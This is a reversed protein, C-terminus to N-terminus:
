DADHDMGAAERNARAEDLAAKFYDWTKISHPDKGDVLARSLVHRIEDVAVDPGYEKLLQKFRRPQSLLDPHLVHGRDAERVESLMAQWYAYLGDEGAAVSGAARLAVLKLSNLWGGRGRIREQIYRFIENVAHEPLYGQDEVLVAALLRVAQAGAPSLIDEHVRGGTTARLKDLIVEDSAVCEVEALTDLSL